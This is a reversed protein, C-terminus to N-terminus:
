DIPAPPGLRPLLLWRNPHDRLERAVFRTEIQAVIAAPTPHDEFFERAVALLYRSQSDIAVTFKALAPSGMDTEVALAQPFEEALWEEVARVQHPAAPPPLM